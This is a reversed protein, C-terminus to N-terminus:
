LSIRSMLSLHELALSVSGQLNKFKLAHQLATKAESILTQVHTRLKIQQTGPIELSGM